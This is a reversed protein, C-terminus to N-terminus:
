ALKSLMLLNRSDLRLLVTLSDTEANAIPRVFFYGAMFSCLFHTSVNDSLGFNLAMQKFQDYSAAQGTTM